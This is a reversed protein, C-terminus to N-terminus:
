EYFISLTISSLTFQLISSITLPQSDDQSFQCSPITRAPTPPNPFTQCPEQQQFVPPNTIILDPTLCFATAHHAFGFTESIPFEGEMSVQTNQTIIGTHNIYCSKIFLYGSFLPSNNMTFVCNELLSSLVNRYILGSAVAATNNYFNSYYIYSIPSAGNIYIAWNGHSFCNAVTVFVVLLAQATTSEFASSQVLAINSNNYNKITQNGRNLYCTSYRNNNFTSTFSSLILFNIDSDTVISHYFQGHYTGSAGNTCNIACVRNLVCGGTNQFYLFGGHHVCICDRATTDEVLLNLTRGHLMIAGGSEGVTSIGVFHCNSVVYSPYMQYIRPYCIDKFFDGYAMKITLAVFRKMLM